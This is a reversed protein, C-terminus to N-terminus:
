ELKSVGVLNTIIDRELQTIWKWGRQFGGVEVSIHKYRKSQLLQLFFNLQRSDVMRKGVLQLSLHLAYVNGRVGRTLPHSLFRIQRKKHIFNLNLRIFDAVFYRQTFVDLPLTTNSDNGQRVTHLDQRYVYGEVQYKAEFQGVGKLLPLNRRM